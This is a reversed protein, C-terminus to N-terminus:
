EPRDHDRAPRSPSGAVPSSRCDTKIPRGVFADIEGLSRDALELFQAFTASSSALRETWSKKLLEVESFSYKRTPSLQTADTM